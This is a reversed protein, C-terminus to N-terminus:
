VSHLSEQLKVCKVWQQQQPLPCDAARAGCSSPSAHATLAAGILLFHCIDAINHTITLRSQWYKDPLRVLTVLHAQKLSQGALLHTESIGLFQCNLWWASVFGWFHNFMMFLKKKSQKNTKIKQLHGDSVLPMGKSLTTIISEVKRFQFLKMCMKTM